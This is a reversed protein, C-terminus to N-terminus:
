LLNTPKKSSKIKNPITDHIKLIRYSKPKGNQDEEVNVDVFYSVTFPNEKPEKIIESMKDCDLLSLFEVPLDKDEIKKIIGRFDTKSKSTLEDISAQHLQMLVNEHKSESVKKEADEFAKITIEAGKNAKSVESNSFKRSLKKIPKKTKDGHDMVSLNLSGKKNKGVTNLIKAISKATKKSYPSDSTNVYEASTINKFFKIADSFNGVFGKFTELQDLTDFFHGMIETSSAFEAFICNNEINTVYLKIDLNKDKEGSKRIKENIFDKYESAVAQFSGVIDDLDIPDHVDLHFGIRADSMGKTM